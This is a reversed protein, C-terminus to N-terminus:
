LGQHKKVQDLWDLLQIELLDGFQAQRRDFAEGYTELPEEVREKRFIEIARTRDRELESANWQPPQLLRSLAM